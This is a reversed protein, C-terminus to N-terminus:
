LNARGLVMGEEAALLRLLSGADPLKGARRRSLMRRVTLRDLRSRQSGSEGCRERRQDAMRKGTEAGAPLVALLALQFDPLRCM